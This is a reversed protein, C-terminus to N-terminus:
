GLLQAVADIGIFEKTDKAGRGSDPHRVARLHRIGFDRAASLVPLSDDIFLTRQPDFPEQAHFRPWFQADEKPAGFPHTSYSIELHRQLDVRENKIALTTPHANTLLVRRKGLRKLAGLFELAGPLFRVQEHVGRKIAEIDLALERSWYDICYWDLTGMSALFKPRLVERTREATLGNARAYHAPILDQWFWNDFRLDLLTGDMDLLVTDIGSWDVAFSADMTKM